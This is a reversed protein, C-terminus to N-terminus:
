RAAGPCRWPRTCCPLTTTTAARARHLRRTGGHRRRVGLRSPLRRPGREPQGDGRRGWRRPRRRRCGRAMPFECIRAGLARYADRAAITDDDHSAMPLLQVCAAAALRASAAQVAADNAYAREALARFEAITMGARESYKAAGAPTDLKRLIAPTHDNFSLLQVRGAEIDALAMGLSDLNHLEWRLHVRMDCDMAPRMAEMANLMARWSAASRLGPEWSLTIAHFATTIGNALLQAQTDRLALDAAFDVGPRPQIQREFADGHLDVIGPLVLLGSADFSIGAPGPGIRVIRGDELLLDTRVQAGDDMLVTGNRIALSTM